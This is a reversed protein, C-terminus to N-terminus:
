RLLHTSTWRPMPILMSVQSRYRLYDEGFRKILAPEEFLMVYVVAVVAILPLLIFASASRTLFAIALLLFLLGLLMPNRTYAYPGTTVLYQTPLLAIGFAEIPSGRGVFHLYSYAWTVWFIGIILSIAAGFLHVRGPYAVPGTTAADIAHSALFFLGPLVIFFLAVTIWLGALKRATTM